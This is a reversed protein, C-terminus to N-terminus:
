NLSFPKQKKQKYFESFIYQIILHIKFIFTYPTLRDTKKVVDGSM